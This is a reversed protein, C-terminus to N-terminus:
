DKFSEQVVEDSGGSRHCKRSHCGNGGRLATQRAQLARRQCANRCPSATKRPHLKCHLALHATTRPRGGMRWSGNSHEGLSWSASVWRSAGCLRYATISAWSRGHRDQVCRDRGREVPRRNTGTSRHQISRQAAHAANFTPCAARSPMTAWDHAGKLVYNGCRVRSECLWESADRVM